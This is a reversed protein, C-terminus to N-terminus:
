GTRKLATRPKTRTGAQVQWRQLSCPLALMLPMTSLMRVVDGHGERAAYHCATSGDQRHCFDGSTLDSRHVGGM